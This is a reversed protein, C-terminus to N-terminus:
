LKTTTMTVTGWSDDLVATSPPIVTTDMKYTATAINNTAIVSKYIRFTATIVSGNDGNTGQVGNSSLLLSVYSDTYGTTPCTIKLVETPTTTLGYYGYGTQYVSRTTVSGTTVQKVGTFSVNNITATSPTTGPASIYIDGVLNLLTQIYYDKASTALLGSVSPTLKLQGGSNFFYRAKDGSTFTWVTQLQLPTTTLAVSYLNTATVAVGQKLAKFRNASSGLNATGTSLLADNLSSNFYIKNNPNPVYEPRLTSNLLDYGSTTGQHKLINNTYNYLQLWESSTILDNTAKPSFTVPQGYGLSGNGVGYINELSSLAKNYIGDTSGKYLTNIDGALITTNQTYSM